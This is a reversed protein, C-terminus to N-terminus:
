LSPRLARQGGWVHSVGEEATGVAAWCPHQSAWRLQPWGEEQNEARERAEAPSCPVGLERNDTIIACQKQKRLEEKLAMGPLPLAKQLRLLGNRKNNLCKLNYFPIEM